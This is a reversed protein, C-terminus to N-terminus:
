SKQQMGLTKQRPQNRQRHHKRRAKQRFQV